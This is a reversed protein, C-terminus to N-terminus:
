DESTGRYVMLWVRLRRLPMTLVPRTGMTTRKRTWRLRTGTPKFVEYMCTITEADKIGFEICIDEIVPVYLFVADPKDIKLKEM